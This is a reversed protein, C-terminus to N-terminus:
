VRDTAQENAIALTQIKSVKSAVSHHLSVHFLTLGGFNSRDPSSSVQNLFLGRQTIARGFEDSANSIKSSNQTESPRSLSISTANVERKSRGELFRGGGFIDGGLIM